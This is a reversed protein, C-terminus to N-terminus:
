IELKSVDIGKALADHIWQPKRGRGSWTQEPNDPNRYKPSAKSSKASGRKRGGSALDDLSFGFEAAANQAAQLAEQRERVEAEKLAEIVDEKLQKLDKRSMAKLDIAM